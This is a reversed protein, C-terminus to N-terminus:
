AAKRAATVAAGRVLDILAMPDAPEADGRWAIHQDPRVMALKHPYLEGAIEAPVDVVKMPVGRKSAAQVLGDVSVKPDFRLLSYDPGLADYLSSGDQLFMHPARCGPVTSPTFDYM